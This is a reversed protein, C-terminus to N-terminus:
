GYHIIFFSQMKEYLNQRCNYPGTSTEIASITKKTTQLDHALQDQTLGKRQRLEKLVSPKIFRKIINRPM